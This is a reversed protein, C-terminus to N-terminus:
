PIIRMDWVRRPIFLVYKFMKIIKKVIKKNKGEELEHMRWKIFLLHDYKIRDCEMMQSYPPLFKAGKELDSVMDEWGESKSLVDLELKNAVLDILHVLKTEEERIQRVKKEVEDDM